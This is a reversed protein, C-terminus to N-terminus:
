SLGLNTSNIDVAGDLIATGSTKLTTGADFTLTGSTYNDNANSRLIQGQDFGALSSASINRLGAGSGLFTGNFTGGNFNDSNITGQVYLNGDIEADNKVLLDDTGDVKDRNGGGVDLLASPSITGLGINGAETVVLKSNEVSFKKTAALDINLDSTPTFIVGSASDFSINDDAITLSTSNIDVAGDLIATGSTKLTTGTLFELTGLTYQDSDNSRLFDASDLNDVTNSNVNTLGSGDGIFNTFNATVGNAKNIDIINQNSM